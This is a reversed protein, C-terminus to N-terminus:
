GDPRKDMRSLRLLAVSEQFIKIIKITSLCAPHRDGMKLIRLSLMKRKSLIHSMAKQFLGSESAFGNENSFGFEYQFSCEM